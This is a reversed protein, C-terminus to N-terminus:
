KEKKGTHFLLHFPIGNIKQQFRLAIGTKPPTLPGGIWQRRGTAETRQRQSENRKKVLNPTTILLHRSSIEIAKQNWM